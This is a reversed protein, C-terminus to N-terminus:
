DGMVCVCCSCNLIYRATITRLLWLSHSADKTSIGGSRGEDSTMTASPRGPDATTINTTTVMDDTNGDINTTTTTTANIPPSAMLDMGGDVNHCTTETTVNSASEARTSVSETHTNTIGGTALSMTAATSEGSPETTDTEVQRVTLVNRLFIFM